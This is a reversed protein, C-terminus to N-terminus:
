FLSQYFVIRHKGKPIVAGQFNYDTLFIAAEKNDIKLHWTPYFSSSLILFGDDKNETEVVIKNEKATLIKAKGTSYKEKLGIGNEVVATKDFADIKFMKEISDQKGKAVQLNEVFFARPLVKKNEYIKTRGEEFVKVLNDDNLESFTLVYKVGMLNIFNSSVNRPTIIRNFGFPSRIDPRGREMAAIFEGYRQLYLPDYGDLSELGHMISFNPPFLEPDLSMIRFPKEQQKLFSIAKTDPFFYDKPTFPLFKWGFRFLDIVLILFLAAYLLKKLFINKIFVILTTSALVSLLIITPFILNSKIIPIETSLYNKAIFTVFVWLGIFFTFLIISPFVIKKSKKLFYDFGLAALVALCFDALILLRTPQSSSLLPINLFYPLRAFFTPLSFLLALFFLLGYFITKKDKRLFLAYAAMLLPLIGVYGIFEGYNWVGWYNLTTPNGFFDPILFQILHQWPIFWGSNQLYNQDISRASLSIFRATSIWQPSTILLIILFAFLFRFSLRYNKTKILRAFIYGLVALSSYFFIQLHGALFSSSVSFIFIVLWVLRKQGQFIKDVSLLILPLWLITHTITGWEMWAVSVGSFSFVIAGFFAALPVIKLNRLYLYLFMGALLPELLILIVWSLSFPLIFFLINIPYFAASQFNAMLPAGVFNYSNWLPLEFQKELSISLYRWPIQQRVPDTILFNKYPIGRPYDKAYLDRYPHYLGIITDSPIPLKSDLFYSKFFIFVLCSLLLFPVFRSLKM